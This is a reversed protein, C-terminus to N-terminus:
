KYVKCMDCVFLWVCVCVCVRVCVCVCYSISIVIYFCAIDHLNSHFMQSQIVTKTYSCITQLYMQERCTTIYCSLSEKCITNYIYIIIYWEMSTGVHIIITISLNWVHVLITCIMGYLNRCTYNYYYLSEMCTGCIMGYLNRCTYNNYYLSEMCTGTYYM